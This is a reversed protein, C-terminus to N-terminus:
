LLCVSSLFCSHEMPVLCVREIHCLLRRAYVFACPYVFVLFLPNGVECFFRLLYYFGIEFEWSNTGNAAAHYAQWYSSQYLSDAGVNWRFVALFTLPLLVLFARRGSQFGKAELGNPLSYVTTNYYCLILTVAMAVAYYTM